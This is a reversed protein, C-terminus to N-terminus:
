KLDGFNNSIAKLREIETSTDNTDLPEYKWYKLLANMEPIYKNLADLQNYALGVKEDL